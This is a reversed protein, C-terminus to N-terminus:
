PACRRPVPDAAISRDWPTGGRVLPDLGGDPRVMVVQGDALQLIAGAPLAAPADHAARARLDITVLASATV